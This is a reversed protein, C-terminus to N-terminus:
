LYLLITFWIDDALTAWHYLMQNDSQLNHTQIEAFAFREKIYNFVFYSFTHHHHRGRQLAFWTMSSSYIYMGKMCISSGTSPVTLSCRQNDMRKGQFRTIFDFFDEEDDLLGSKNLSSNNEKDESTKAAHVKKPDPTMKILDKHEM